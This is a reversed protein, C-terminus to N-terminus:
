INCGRDIKSMLMMGTKKAAGDASDQSRNLKYIDTMSSDEPDSSVFYIM